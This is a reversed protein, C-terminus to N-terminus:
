WGSPMPTFGVGGSGLRKKPVQARLKLYEERFQSEMRALRKLEDSLQFILLKWCVSLSFFFNRKGVDITFIGGFREFCDVSTFKSSFFQAVIAQFATIIPDKSSLAILSPSALARYANIRSVIYMQHDKSFSPSALAPNANNRFVIYM